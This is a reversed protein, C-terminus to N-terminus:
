ALAKIWAVFAEADENAGHGADWYMRLDVADGLDAAQAALNSIVTLSTDSDKAGVRLWWHRSRAANGARLFGMPNMLRLKEPIDAALTDGVSETVFETFHRAKVPGLGFLNNEGSSLDLTDFAPAGKKRTGVHALFQPWDFEAKGDIWRINRNNMLYAVRDADSLAALFATAEPKLFTQVLYDGYTEAYLPGFGGQGELGLSAQYSAFEAALESSLMPEITVGEPAPNQGWNWEYAGDAHELDTIPCWSGTAFIADSEQAAGLESLMPQYLPSDGSAGLLASVAGGASTGSSVIRDVNGPLRGRNHRVWRVAAKLDVIVAPAVGYYEGAANVLTRGRTGPEVVVLGHALAIKANSVMKGHALMAASGSPAETLGGAAPPPAMGEPMKGGPGAMGGGGIGDAEAVYSPMYGGVSNALLIPAASADVAVGDIAVPVSVNLSQYDRDVPRAVYPLGRWFRYTVQVPGKALDVTITKVEFAAADFELSYDVPAEAWVPFAGTLMAAAAATGALVRRRSVMM